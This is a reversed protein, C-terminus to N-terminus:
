EHNGNPLKDDADRDDAYEAYEKGLYGMDFQLAKGQVIVPEVDLLFYLMRGPKDPSVNRWKHMAGRNISVDGPRMIRAEGSDLSLEFEGECVTGVGCCVARHMNSESGPSFDIMRVVAGNPM